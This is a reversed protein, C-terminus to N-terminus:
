SSIQLSKLHGNLHRSQLRPARNHDQPERMIPTSNQRNLTVFGEAVDVIIITKSARIGLAVEHNAAAIAHLWLSFPLLYM